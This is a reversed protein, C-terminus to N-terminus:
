QSMEAMLERASILFFDEEEDDDELIFQKAFDDVEIKLEPKPRKKVQSM